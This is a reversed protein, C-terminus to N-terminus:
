RSAKTKRSNIRNWILGLVVGFTVMVVCGLLALEIESAPIPATRRLQPPRAIGPLAALALWLFGRSGVLNRDIAM